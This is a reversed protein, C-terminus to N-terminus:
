IDMGTNTYVHAYINVAECEFPGSTTNFATLVNVHVCMIICTMCTDVHM